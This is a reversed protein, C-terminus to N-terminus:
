ARGGGLARIADVLLGEWLQAPRRWSVDLALLRARIAASGQREILRAAREVAATLAEATLETFLIGSRGDEITDILGGVAHAIPLAGYRQSLLQVLGCPEFRSPILTCDAGAYLRRAFAEDWGVILGVRRPHRAALELLRQAILPDGEGLLALSAGAELLPEVSDALVDWGKQTAFRGVAALLRGPAPADLGLEELLAVRCADKGACDANDFPAALAVDTSPDFRETDLGNAIGVLAERRHEYVGELGAGFGAGRVERAYSPSVTVIREAWQLGAKLLCLDGHFELGDSNFLRAPLGTVEM